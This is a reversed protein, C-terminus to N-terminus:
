FGRAHLAAQPPSELVKQPGAILRGAVALYKQSDHRKLPIPKVSEVAIMDDYFGARYSKEPIVLTVPCDLWEREQDRFTYYSPHNRDLSITPMTKNLFHLQAVTYWRTGALFGDIPCHAPLQHVIPKRVSKVGKILEPWLTLEMMPAANEDLATLLSKRFDRRALLTPLVVSLLAALIWSRKSRALDDAFLAVAAPLLLWFGPMIGHLLAPKCISIMGMLLILPVSGGLIILPVGDPLFGRNKMLREISRLLLWAFWPTVFIVFGLGTLLGNEWNLDLLGKDMQHRLSLGDHRLNWIWIPTTMVLALGAASLWFALDQRFQRRRLWLLALGLGLGILLAHYKFLGGMGLLFGFWFGQSGGLRVRRRYRLTFWLAATMFPYLGADPLAFVGLLGFGPWLVTASALLM